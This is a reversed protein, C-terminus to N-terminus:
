MKHLTYDLKVKRVQIGPGHVDMVCEGKSEQLSVKLQADENQIATLKQELEVKTREEEKLQSQM